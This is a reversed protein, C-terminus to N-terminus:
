KEAKVLMTTRGLDFQGGVSDYAAPKPDAGNVLVRVEVVYITGKKMGLSTTRLNIQFTDSSADYTALGLKSEWTTASGQAHWRLQVRGVLGNAEADPIATGNAAKIGFKLPLNGSGGNVVGPTPNLPPGFAGFGYQSAWVVSTPPASDTTAVVQFVGAAASAAIPAPATAVGSANTDVTVSSVGGPFTARAGNAAQVVTFTVPWDEVPTLGDTLTARLGGPPLTFGTGARATLGDPEATLTFASVNIVKTATRIVTDDADYLDARVTLPGSPVTGTPRLVVNGFADTTNIFTVLPNANTDRSVTFVVNQGELAAGGPDRVQATVGYPSDETHGQVDLELTPLSVDPELSLGYGEGDATDLGVTGIGNAAQVIFRMGEHTQGAPLPMTATWRTSDTLSQRLDLSTWKGHGSDTGTGTWTIWVQQVGASPDGTAKASFRVQGNRFTGHVESIGPAAALVPKNDGTDTSSDGTYFLRLSMHSFARETNTLSDPADSRYQGPTLILSTRGSDGLAGFYNATAVKQPFFVPSEFTSNATSGETAPAGTLSLLGPTDTYVGGRFGVGRLVLDRVTVNEVQKPLAPAGPQVTVGDEGNLWSLKNPLDTRDTQAKTGRSTPTDVEYDAARLGLQGGAGTTIARPSVASADGDLKARVPADFGTMPLGYLTAQLVAKQDIGDLTVLSALYDQKALTLARGVAVPANTAAAPDGERLRRAVDLYLRESYELFDTDGYQYGTGGILVAQQQAMRQAWDNPNTQGPVAANDVINYASHCGASLVLTDTLAGPAVTPAIEDAEFTDDEDFNAALTDNASFHGALYVLDHHEGLLAERLDQADWSQDHPTGNEAILTDSTAGPLAADFQDNVRHAADALFDYGTVLSNDPRPLTGNTLRLYHDITAAIEAPTEVLRGVALGPVPVTAGGITVQHSSGYGDQSLVQDNILTANSTSDPLVPPSFQSEQGLGSTDPYRFFPIIDDNGAIVVYKSGANRYGDAIDKIAQAVLNAAYPCKPHTAVQDQLAIVKGSAHVDVVAGTTAGALRGLAAVYANYAPTGPTLGLKNTDTLIVTRADTRSPALTPSNSYTELGDCDSNGTTRELGFAKVADFEADDHGQVRVYFYGNTNGTSATVIEDSRETNASVALLTENQATSFANRFADNSELDPVYSDPAYIRPAYIRPAYIRPAYIRPAFKTSPVNDASTPVTTVDTPYNPVQSGSGPAGAAAAGALQSVYDGDSLADFAQQIDGYLALDYDAPLNKLSVSVQQGPVVPFRYWRAEGAEAITGTAGGGTPLTGSPLDAAGLWQRNDKGITADLYPKTSLTFTGRFFRNIDGNNGTLIFGYTDGVQVDFTEVGGYLFGNSPTTCCDRPGANFVSTVNGNVFKQLNATVNFWAHLGSWTYPVKVTGDATATATFRVSLGEPAGDANYHMTAASTTGDSDLVAGFGSVEWGTDVPIASAPASPVSLVGAVAAVLAIAGAVAVRARSM